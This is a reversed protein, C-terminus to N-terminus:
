PAAEEGQHAPYMWANTHAARQNEAALLAVPYCPVLTGLGRPLVESRSPRKQPVSLRSRSVNTADHLAGRLSGPGKGDSGNGTVRNLGRLEVESRRRRPRAPLARRSPGHDM